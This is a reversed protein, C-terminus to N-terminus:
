RQCLKALLRVEERFRAEAIPGSGASLQKRAVARQDKVRVSEIVEYEHTKAILQKDAYGIATMCPNWSIITTLDIADAQV